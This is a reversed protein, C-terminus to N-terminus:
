ADDSTLHAVADWFAEQDEQFIELVPVKGKAQHELIIAKLDIISLQDGKTIVEVMGLHQETFDNYIGESDSFGTFPSLETFEHDVTALYMEGKMKAVFGLQKVM